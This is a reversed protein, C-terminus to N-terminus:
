GSNCRWWSWWMPIDDFHGQVRNLLFSEINIPWHGFLITLHSSRAIRIVWYASFVSKNPCSFCYICSFRIMERRFEGLPQRNSASCYLSLLYLVDQSYQATVVAISIELDRGFVIAIEIREFRLHFDRFVELAQWGSWDTDAKGCQPIWQNWSSQQTESPFRFSAM